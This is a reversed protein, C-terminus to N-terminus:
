SPGGALHRKRIIRLVTDTVEGPASGLRTTIFRRDVARLQETMVFSLERLGTEATPPIPVHNPVNRKARTIPCVLATGPIRLYGASHVIIAPRVNAQEVGREPPGFDVLFLEGARL